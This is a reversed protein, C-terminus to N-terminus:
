EWRLSAGVRHAGGPWPGILCNLGQAILQYGCVLVLIPAAVEIAIAVWATLFLYADYLYLSTPLSAIGTIGLHNLHARLSSYGVVAIIAAIGGL